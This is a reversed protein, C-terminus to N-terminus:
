IKKKNLLIYDKFQNYVQRELPSTLFKNRDKLEILRTYRYTASTYSINCIRAVEDASKINLGWLVCAPALLRIAFMDAEKEEIPRSSNFTTRAYRDQILKHGLIIHGIEHALTFRTNCAPMNDNYIIYWNNNSLLSIAYQYPELKSTSLTSNKILKIDLKSALEVVDVPLSTINYDLILQWSADRVKTYRYKAYNNM